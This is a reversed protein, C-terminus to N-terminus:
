PNITRKFGRFLHGRVLMSGVKAMINMGSEFMKVALQVLNDIEVQPCVIANHINM